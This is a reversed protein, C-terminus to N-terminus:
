WHGSTGCCGPHQARACVFRCRPRGKGGTGATSPGPLSPGWALSFRRHVRANCLRPQPSLQAGGAADGEPFEPIAARHRCAGPAGPGGGWVACCVGFGRAKPYFPHVSPHRLLTPAKCQAGPLGQPPISLFILAPSCSRTPFPWPLLAWSCGVFKSDQFPLTSFVREAVPCHPNVGPSCGPM